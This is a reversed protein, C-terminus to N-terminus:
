SKINAPDFSLTATQDGNEVWSGTIVGAAVPGGGNETLELTGDSKLELTGDMSFGGFDLMVTYSYSSGASTRAKQAEVSVEIAGFKGTVIGASGGDLDFSETLRPFTAWGDSYAYGESLININGFTVDQAVETKDSVANTVYASSSNAVATVHYSTNEALAETSVAYNEASIGEMTVVTQDSEDATNTFTVEVSDPYAQYTYREVNTLVLELSKDNTNWFYAIEPADQSGRVTYSVSAAGSRSYSSDTMEPFAYVKVLFEGYNFQFLDECKGTYIDSGDETIPSSAFLYDDDDDTASLDCFYILYFDANEVGRFSYNGNEDVAFDSPTDLAIADSADFIDAGSGTGAKASSNGAALIKSVNNMYSKAYTGASTGCATVSMGLLTVLCGAAMRMKWSRKM